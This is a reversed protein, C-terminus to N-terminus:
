DLGGGSGSSLNLIEGKNIRQTGQSQLIKMEGRSDLSIECPIFDSYKKIMRPKHKTLDSLWTVDIDKLAQIQFVLGRGGTFKSKKDGHSRHLAQIVKVPFERELNEISLKENQACTGNQHASAGDGSKLEIVTSAFETQFQVLLPSHCSPAKERKSHIHSLALEIALQLAAIGVTMGKLTSAPYKAMLWCGSPKTVQLSAFSGSNAYETFGYFQSITHFCTGFAASETLNIITSPTTGGFDLAIKGEHIDIKLRLLEGSDLIVDVRTEGSAKESILQHALEKSLHLYEEILEGTIEFGIGEITEILKRSMASMSSFEAQIWDGFHPPCAPHSQIANLIIANFKGNQLLPTPPIRVGEEEVSKGAKISKAIAKRRVWLLDESIAMIFTMEDLTSGGSFPDNLIAIDGEQLKLYTGANKAATTLTGYTAPNKGRVALVDGEITVLASEGDLFNNLLSHFLQIRYSM